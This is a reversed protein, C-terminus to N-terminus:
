GKEGKGIEKIVAAEFFTTRDIADKLTSFHEWPNIKITGDIVISADQSYTTAWFLVADILRDFGNEETRLGNYSVVFRKM